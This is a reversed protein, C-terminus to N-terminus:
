VTRFYEEVVQIWQELREPPFGGAQALEPRGGGKGGLESTARKVAEHCSGPLERSRAIVIQCADSIAFIAVTRPRSTLKQALNKVSELSRGSFSKRVLAVHPGTEANQLLVAAEMDLLQDRLNANEKSLETKEQMLRETLEPILDLTASHIRGLRKLLEHEKHFAKLARGGAVFEVRTGGKYREFGLISIIGIEGTSHVHTGGCPSRDFGEVEIVRIEGERMSEKRVGLSSLSERDTTLINVPRNEFVIGTALMQAQEMQVSSPQAIEIDITSVEQGLHFSVTPAQAVALFAQSLIHQGTHQQMHDFRRTWDIRGTVPGSPVPRDLIHLIEGSDEEMVKLVRAEGLLGTDHPQGGSEPYFATQDLVVAPSSGAQRESLVTASFEKLYSDTYYLHKTMPQITYSIGTEPESTRFSPM